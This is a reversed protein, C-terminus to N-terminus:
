SDSEGYLMIKLERMGDAADVLMQYPVEVPTEVNAGMVKATAYCVALPALKLLVSSLKARETRTMIM